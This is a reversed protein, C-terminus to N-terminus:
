LGFRARISSVTNAHTTSDHAINYILICSQDGNLYTSSAATPSGIAAGLSSTNSTLGDTQFSTNSFQNTGNIYGYINSNSWDVIVSFVYYTGTSIGSGGSNDSLSDADLRRGVGRVLGTTATTGFAIRQGTTSTGVSWGSSPQFTAISNVKCVWYVTAGGVNKFIDLGTGSFTWRDDTGDFRFVANGNVENQEWTPRAASTSQTPANGSGSWDTPTQVSGADAYATERQADLWLALNSTTPPSWASSTTAVVGQQGFFFPGALCHGLALSLILLLPKM